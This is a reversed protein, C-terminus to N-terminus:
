YDYQEDDKIEINGGAKRIARSVDDEDQEGSTGSQKTTNSKHDGYKGKKWKSNLYNEAADASVLGNQEWDILTREIYTLTRANNKRATQMAYIILDATYLECWSSIVEVDFSKPLYFNNEFFNIVQKLKEQKDEDDESSSSSTETTIESTIKSTIETNTHCEPTPPTGNNHTGEGMEANPTDRKKTIPTGKKRSLHGKKVRCTDSKRTKVAAKKVIKKTKKKKNRKSKNDKILEESVFSLEKLKELNLKLYLVNNLIMGKSSINRFVREIVGLKELRIISDKVQREGLGFQDAISGYSKQLLDDKYKNKWGVHAGTLEDRIEIPKYWYVVEALINIAVLDAKGNDKTITQFWASHVINGSLSFDKLEIM